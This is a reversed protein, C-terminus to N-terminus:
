RARIWQSGPLFTMVDDCWLRRSRNFPAEASATVLASAARARPASALSLRTLRHDLGLVFSGRPRGVLRCDDDTWQARRIPGCRELDDVLGRAPVPLEKRGLLVVLGLHRR